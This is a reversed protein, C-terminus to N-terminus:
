RSVTEIKFSWAMWEQLLWHHAGMFILPVYIRQVFGILLVRCLICGIFFISIILFVDHVFWVWDYHGFWGFWKCIVYICQPDWLLARSKQEPAHSPGGCLRCAALASPLASCPFCGLPGCHPGFSRAETPTSLIQSIYSIYCNQCIVFSILAEFWWLKLLTEGVQRLSESHKNGGDNTLLAVSAWTATQMSSWSHAWYHGTITARQWICLLCAPSRCFFHPLFEKEDVRAVLHTLEQATPVWTALEAFSKSLGQRQTIKRPFCVSEATTVYRKSSQPVWASEPHWLCLTAFVCSKGQPELNPASHPNPNECLAAATQCLAKLLLPPWWLAILCAWLVYNPESVPTALSM